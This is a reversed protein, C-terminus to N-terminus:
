ETEGAENKQAAREVKKTAAQQAFHDLQEKIRAEAATLTGTKSVNTTAVESPMKDIQLTTIMHNLMETIVKTQRDSYGTRRRLIDLPEKLQEVVQATIAESLVDGLLHNQNSEKSRLVLEDIVAGISGMGVNDQYDILWQKTEKSVYAYVRNETRKNKKTKSM